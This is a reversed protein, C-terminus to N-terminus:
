NSMQWEARIRRTSLRESSTLIAYMTFVDLMPRTVLSLKSATEETCSQGITQNWMTLLRTATM